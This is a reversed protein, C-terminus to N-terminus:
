RRLALHFTHGGSQNLSGQHLYKPDNSSMSMIINNLRHIFKVIEQQGQGKGDLM